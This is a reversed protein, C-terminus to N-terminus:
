CCLSLLLLKGTGILIAVYGTLFAFRGPFDANITKKVVKAISGKLLSNLIKVIAILAVVIM